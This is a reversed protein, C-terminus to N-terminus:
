PAPPASPLSLDVTAPDGPWPVPRGCRECPGEDRRPRGCVCVWGRRRAPVGAVLSFPAVDRTVVAGAAVLAFAGIGVGCVITANAGISAGRGVRTPTATWEGAFARPHLDNTFAVHPGIFADDEVTLGRYLSVGNQVKVRRGIRVGVDVYVGQGLQTGAGIAAGERVHSWHWIRVGPGLRAEPSVAATPHIV